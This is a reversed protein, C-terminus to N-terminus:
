WLRRYWSQLLPSIHQHCQPASESLQPDGYIIVLFFIVHWIETTVRFIGDTICVITSDETVSWGKLIPLMIVTHLARPLCLFIHTWTIILVNRISARVNKDEIQKLSKGLKYLPYILLLFPIIDPLIAAFLMQGFLFWELSTNESMIFDCSVYRPSVDSYIAPIMGTAGEVVFCSMILWPFGKKLKQDLYEKDMTMSYYAYAVLCMILFVNVHRLGFETFSVLKCSTQSVSKLGHVDLAGWLKPGFRILTFFTILGYIIDYGSIYYRRTFLLVFYFIFGSISVLLIILIIISNEYNHCPDYRTNVTNEELILDDQLFNNELTENM